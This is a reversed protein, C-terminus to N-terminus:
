RVSLLVDFHYSVVIAVAVAVSFNLRQSVKSQRQHHSCRKQRQQQAATPKSTEKVEQENAQQEHALLVVCFAMKKKRKNAGTGPREELLRAPCLCSEEFPKLRRLFHLSFRALPFFPKSGGILQLM